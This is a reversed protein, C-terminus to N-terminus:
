LDPLPAPTPESEAQSVLAAEQSTLADSEPARQDDASATPGNPAIIPMGDNGSCGSLIGVALALSLTSYVLPKM